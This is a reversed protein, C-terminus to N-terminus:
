LWYLRKVVIEYLPGDKKSSKKREIIAYLKESINKISGYSVVSFVMPEFKTSLMAAFSPPLTAFDKGYLPALKQNWDTAWTASLSFKQLSENIVKEQEKTPQKLGLIQKLSPSLLWPDISADKSFVTFIDTLYLLPPAEKEGEKKEPKKEDDVPNLFVANQFAVGFEKSTLVETVDNLPFKRDHLLSSLKEFLGKSDQSKEIASCVQEIFPKIDLQKDGEGIFAHKSFDYIKNLNIKGSECGMNIKITGYPKGGEMVTFKQYRALNPLVVSLFNRGEQAPDKQKEPEGPKGAQAAEAKEEGKETEVPNALFSKALELGSLALARAKERELMISMTVAHVRARNVISTVMATVLGIMMLCFVLMYGPQKM